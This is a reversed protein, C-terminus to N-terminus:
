SPSEAISRLTELRGRVREVAVWDLYRIGPSVAYCVYGRRGDVDRGWARLEGDHWHDDRRVLAPKAPAGVRV